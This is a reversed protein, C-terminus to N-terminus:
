GEGQAVRPEGHGHWGRWWIRQSTSAARPAYQHQCSVCRPDAGAAQDPGGPGTRHGRATSSRQHTHCGLPGEPETRGGVFKPRGSAGLPRVRPMRTPSPCSGWGPSSCIMPFRDPSNFRRPGRSSTGDSHNRNRDEPVGQRRRVNDDPDSVADGGGHDGCRRVM